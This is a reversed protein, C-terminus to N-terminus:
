GGSRLDTLLNRLQAKQEDGIRDAGCIYDSLETDGWSHREILCPDVALERCIPDPNKHFKVNSFVAAVRDAEQQSLLRTAQATARLCGQEAAVGGDCQTPDRGAVTLISHAFTMAGDADRSIEASFVRDIDGCFGLGPTQKFQYSQFSSYDRLTLGGILCGALTLTLFCLGLIRPRRSWVPRIAQPASPM